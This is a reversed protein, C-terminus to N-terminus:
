GDDREARSPEPTGDLEGSTVWETRVDGHSGIREPLRERALRLAEAGSRAEVRTMVSVTVHGHVLYTAM